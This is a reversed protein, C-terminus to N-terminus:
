NIYHVIRVKTLEEEKKLLLYLEPRHPHKEIAKKAKESIIHAWEEDKAELALELHAKLYDADNPSLEILPWMLAKAEEVKGQKILLRASQATLRYPSNSVTAILQQLQILIPDEPSEVLIQSAKYKLNECVTKFARQYQMQSSYQDVLRKFIPAAQHPNGKIDQAVAQYYWLHRNETTVGEDSGLKEKTLKIVEDFDQLDLLMKIKDIELLQNHQRIKEEIRKSSM